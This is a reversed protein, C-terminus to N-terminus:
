ASPSSECAEAVEELAKSSGGFVLEEVEEQSGEKFAEIFCTALHTPIESSHEKFQGELYEVLKARDFQTFEVVENMKWQNGDKTLEVEM